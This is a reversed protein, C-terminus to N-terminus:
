TPSAWRAQKSKQKKLSFYAQFIFIFKTIKLDGNHRERKSKVMEM